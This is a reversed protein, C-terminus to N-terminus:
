FMKPKLQKLVCDFGMLVFVEKAVAGAGFLESRLMLHPWEM